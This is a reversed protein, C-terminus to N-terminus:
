DCLDRIEEVMSVASGNARPFMLRTDRFARTSDACRGMKNLGVASLHFIGRFGRVFFMVERNVNAYVRM